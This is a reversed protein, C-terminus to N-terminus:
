KWRWICGCSPTVKAKARKMTEPTQPVQWGLSNIMWQWIKKGKWLTWPTRMSLISFHNAMWKEMKGRKTLVRWWSRNTKPPGVCCPEYNWQTLCPQPGHSETQNTKQSQPKWETQGRICLSLLSISAEQHSLNVSPSVWNGIPFSHTLATYQWM